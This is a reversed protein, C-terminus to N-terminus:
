KRTRQLLAMYVARGLERAMVTTMMWEDEQRCIENHRNLIILALEEENPAGASTPASQQRRLEDFFEVESKSIEANQAQSNRLWEEEESGAPAPHRLARLARLEFPGGAWFTGTLEREWLKETKWEDASVTRWTGDAFFIYFKREGFQAEIQQWDTAGAQAAALAAAIALAEDSRLMRRANAYDRLIQVYNAQADTMEGAGKMM